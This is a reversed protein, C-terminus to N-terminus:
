SNCARTKSVARKMGLIIHDMKFKSMINQIIYHLERRDFITLLYADMKKCNTSARYWTVSISYVSQFIYEYAGFRFRFLDRNRFKCNPPVPYKHLFNERLESSGTRWIEGSAPRVELLRRDAFQFKTRRSSYCFRHGDCARSVVSEICIHLSLNGYIHDFQIVGYTPSYYLQFILGDKIWQHRCIDCFEHNRHSTTVPISFIHCSQLCNTQHVSIIFMVSPNHSSVLCNINHVKGLMESVPLRRIKNSKLLYYYGRVKCHFSNLIYEKYFPNTWVRLVQQYAFYIVNRHSMYPWETPLYIIQIHSCHHTVNFQILFQKLNSEPRFHPMVMMSPRLSKGIFRGICMSSDVRFQYSIVAFPPYAFVVMYLENETGTIVLDRGSVDISDHWHAVLNKNQNVVNYIAVGASIYMGGYPGTIDLSVVKISAHTGVPAIIHYTCMWSNTNNVGCCNNNPVSIQNQPKLVIKDNEFTTFNLQMSRYLDLKLLHVVFVQFTSSLIIHTQTLLTPMNTNPGDYILLMSEWETNFSTDIMVRYLMDVNIRYWHVKYGGWTMIGPGITCQDDYYMYRGIVGIRGVIHVDGDVEAPRINGIEFSVSNSHGYMSWPFRKGCYRCKRFGDDIQFTTFTNTCDNRFYQVRFRNFIVYHEFTMNINFLKHVFMNIPLLKTCGMSEQSNELKWTNQLIFVNVWMKLRICPLSFHQQQPRYYTSLCRLFGILDEGSKQSVPRLQMCREVRIEMFVLWEKIPEMDILQSVDKEFPYAANIYNVPLCLVAIFTIPIGM